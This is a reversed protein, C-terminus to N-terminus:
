RSGILQKIGGFNQASAIATGGGFAIATSIAVQTLIAINLNIVLGSGLGSKSSRSGVVSSPASFSELYSLDSIIM